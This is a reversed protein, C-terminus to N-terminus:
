FNIKKGKSQLHGILKEVSTNMVLAEPFDLKEIIASAVEFTGVTSSFHSDSGMIVKIGKEKCLQAIRECRPGSGKRSGGVFSSNNIEVIKDYKKCADTFRDLDIPIKPNGPHGIIDIAPYKKMANIFAETNEEESRVDLCVDHFSAIMIDINKLYYEPIDIDGEFSIINAEVGRLIKMGDIIRPIAVQNAIHFIHSAGPMAPGHDTFGILELGIKKGQTVIEQVTSYAHGSALTHVHCDLVYKM